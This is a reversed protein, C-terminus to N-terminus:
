IIIVLFANFLVSLISTLLTTTANVANNAFGLAWGPLQDSISSVVNQADRESFGLHRLKSIVDANLSTLNAPSLANTIEESLLKVEQEFSPIALVIAGSVVVLLALYIVSVALPRHLGRRQLLISAPELIFAIVWALFFLLIVDGLFLLASWLVAAMYTAVLAILLNVLVRLSRHRDLLDRRM